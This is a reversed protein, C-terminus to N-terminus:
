RASRIRSILVAGVVAIGAAIPFGAGYGGTVSIVVGMVVPGLIQGGTNAMNLIGLDKAAAEANPLVDYNLAQDVSNFVGSAVGLGLAAFVVMAVPQPWVFPVLLSVAMLLMSGIVFIKRRGVRDSVPGAVAGFILSLVLQVTAMTAIMAGAGVADMGLHDTFIYLQYGTIAFMALVFLLKGFMALYFDRAGRRPFSFNTLLMDRSFAPRPEGANSKDPALLALVPGSFLIAIAMIMFGDTPNAVFRSAVINAAAAGVMFGVGYVASYTGRMREPVRDPIVAVLPAVIANLFFQFVCWVVVIATVSEARTLAFLSLGTIASGLLMWPTRKGLRSRTLDSFAGFVINALLAVISGVIALTAIVQVKSDPAVIELRAPLLVTISAIYPGIWLIGGIVLAVALRLPPRAGVPAASTSLPAAPADTRDGPPPVSSM